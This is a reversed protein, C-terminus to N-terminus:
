EKIRRGAAQGRSTSDPYITIERWRNYVYRSLVTLNIEALLALLNSVTFFALKAAIPGISKNYM